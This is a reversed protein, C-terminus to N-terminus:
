GDDDTEQKAKNKTAVPESFFVEIVITIIGLALSVWFAWWAVNNRRDLSHDASTSEQQKVLVQQHAGVILQTHAADFQEQLGTSGGPGPPGPPVTPPPPQLPRPPLSAMAKQVAAVGEKAASVGAQASGALDQAEEVAAFLGCSAIFCVVAFGFNTFKPWKRAGESPSLALDTAAGAALATSILLLDGAHIVDGFDRTAGFIYSFVWVAGFPLFAAGLVLLLWIFIRFIFRKVRPCIKPAM